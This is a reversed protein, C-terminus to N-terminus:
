AEALPTSTRRDAARSPVVPPRAGPDGLRQSPDRRAVVKSNGGQELDPVIQCPACLEAIPRCTSSAVAGGRNELCMWGLEDRL